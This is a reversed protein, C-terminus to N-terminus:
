ETQRICMIVCHSMPVYITDYVIHTHTGCKKEHYTSATSASLYLSIKHIGLLCFLLHFLKILFSEDFIDFYLLSFTSNQSHNHNNINLIYWHWLNHGANEVVNVKKEQCIWTKSYVNINSNDDYKGQWTYTKKESTYTQVVLWKFKHFSYPFTFDDLKIEIWKEKIQLCISFPSVHSIQNTSHFDSITLRTALCSKFFAQVWSITQISLLFAIVHTSSWRNM